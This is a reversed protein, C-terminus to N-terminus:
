WLRHAHLNRGLVSRVDQTFRLADLVPLLNLLATDMPDSFWSKIPIANDPYSRYASPSNDLIFISSLDMSILELNKTYSGYDMTCHQRYYRRQLVGRQNDLRDAVAAGYIEMSATFIVLNYWQSVQTCLHILNDESKKKKKRPISSQLPYNPSTQRM